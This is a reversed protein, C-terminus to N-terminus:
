AISTLNVLRPTMYNLVYVLKESGFKRPSHSSFVNIDLLHMSIGLTSIM